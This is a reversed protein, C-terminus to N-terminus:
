PAGRRQPVGAVLLALAAAISVLLGAEILIILPKAWGHPYGLFAGATVSGFLGVALFIAPGIALALRLALSDTRPLRALGALMVLLWMAALVTGAQFKGGPADAGIWFLHIAILLGIPALVRALLVLAGSPEAPALPPPAEGYAEDPALAWVGLLAVVLVITELLTDIARFVLLVGTVPNGLDSASLHRMTDQALSPAPEPLLLIVVGLAVAVAGALLATALHLSLRREGASAPAPRGAEMRAVTRILLLGTAGGGIAAETLAVDVAYLRAWALALVLGLGVFGIVAAAADEARIVQLALALMLVVLALDLLTM